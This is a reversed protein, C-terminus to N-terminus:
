DFCLMQGGKGCEGEVVTVRKVPQDDALRYVLIHRDAGAVAVKRVIANSQDPLRNEIATRSKVEVFSSERAAHPMVAVGRHLAPGCSAASIVSFSALSGPSSITSGTWTLLIM